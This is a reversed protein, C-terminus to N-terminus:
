SAAARTGLRASQSRLRTVFGRAPSSLTRRPRFYSPSGTTRALLSWLVKRERKVGPLGAEGHAVESGPLWQGNQLTRPRARDLIQQQHKEHLDGTGSQGCQSENM